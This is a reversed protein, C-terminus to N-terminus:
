KLIRWWSLLRRVADDGVEGVEAVGDNRRCSHDDLCRGLVHINHDAVHQIMIIKCIGGGAPRFRFEIIVEDAVMLRLVVVHLDHAGIVLGGDELGFLGIERIDGDFDLREGSGALRSFGPIEAKTGHEAAGAVLVIGEGDGLAGLLPVHELACGVCQRNQGFPSIFRDVIRIDSIHQAHVGLAGVEGEADVVLEDALDGIGVICVALHAEEHLCEVDWGGM